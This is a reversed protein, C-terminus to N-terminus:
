GCGTQPMARSRKGGVEERGREPLTQTPHSFCVCVGLHFVPLLNKVSKPMKNRPWPLEPFSETEPVKTRSGGYGRGRPICIPCPLCLNSSSTQSPGHRGQACLQLVLTDPLWLGPLADRAQSVSRPLLPLWPGRAGQPAAVSIPLCPNEAFRRGKDPEPDATAWM